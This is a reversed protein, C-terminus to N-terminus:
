KTRGKEASCREKAKSELSSDELTTSCFLQGTAPFFSQKLHNQENKLDIKPTLKSSFNGPNLIGIDYVSENEDQRSEFLLIETRFFIISIM